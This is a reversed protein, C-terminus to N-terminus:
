PEKSCPGSRRPRAAGARGLRALVAIAAPPPSAGPPKRTAMAVAPPQPARGLGGPGGTATGWLRRVAQGLSQQGLEKRCGM